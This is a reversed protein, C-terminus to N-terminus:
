GRWGKQRGRRVYKGDSDIVRMSASSGIPADGTQRRDKWKGGRQFNQQHSWAPATIPSLVMSRSPTLPGVYDLFRIESLHAFKLTYTELTNNIVKRTAEEASGAGVAAGYATIKFFKGNLLVGEKEGVIRITEM